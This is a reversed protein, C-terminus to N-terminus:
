CCGKQIKDNKQKTDTELKVGEIRNQEKKEVEKEKKFEKYMEKLLLEFAKQIYYDFTLTLHPSSTREYDEIISLLIKTLSLSEENVGFAFGKKEYTDKNQLFDYCILDNNYILTYLVSKLIYFCSDRLSGEKKEHHIQLTEFVLSFYKRKLDNM